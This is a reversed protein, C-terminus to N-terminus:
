PEATSIASASLESGSEDPRTKEETHIFYAHHLHLSEHSAVLDLATEAEPGDPFIRAFEFLEPDSSAM